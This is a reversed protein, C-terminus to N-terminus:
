TVCQRDCVTQRTEGREGGGERVRERRGGGECEREGVKVQYIHLVIDFRMNRNRAYQLLPSVAKETQAYVDKKNTQKNTKTAAFPVGQEVLCLVSAILLTLWKLSVRDM